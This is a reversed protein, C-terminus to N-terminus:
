PAISGEIKARYRAVEPTIEIDPVAAALERRADEYWGIEYLSAAFEFRYRAEAKGQPKLKGFARVAQAYNGAAYLAEAQKLAAARETEQPAVPAGAPGLVALQTAPLVKEAIARFEARVADPVSLGAYTRQVREAAVVRGAAYRAQTDHGLRHEAIARYVQATEYDPISDLLGFAAIRLEKAAAAYNGANVHAVGRQLLSTYFDDAAQLSAACAVVVVCVASVRLSRLM